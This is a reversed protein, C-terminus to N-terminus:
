LRAAALAGVQDTSGPQVTRVVAMPSPPAAASADATTGPLRDLQGTTSVV